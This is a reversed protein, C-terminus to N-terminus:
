GVSVLPELKEVGEIINVVQIKTMRILTFHYRIILKILVERNVLSTSCRKM